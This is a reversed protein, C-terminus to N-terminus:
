PKLSAGTPLAGVSLLVGISLSFNSAVLGLGCGVDEDNDTFIYDYNLM